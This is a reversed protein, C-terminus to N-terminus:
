GRRFEVAITDDPDLRAALETLRLGPASDDTSARTQGALLSTGALKTIVDGSRLGAKAAPGNPTVSNVVAGISDTDRARLNVSIGLRARRSTLMQFAPGQADGEVRYYVDPPVGPQDQAELLSAMLLSAALLTLTRMTTKTRVTVSRRELRPDSTRGDACRAAWGARSLSRAAGCGPPRRAAASGNGARSRDPRHPGGARRGGSR